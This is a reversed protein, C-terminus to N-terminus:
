IRSRPAVAVSLVIEIRAVNAAAFVLVLESIFINLLVGLRLLPMAMAMVAAATVATIVAPQDAFASVSRAAVPSALTAGVARATSWAGGAFSAATRKAARFSCM